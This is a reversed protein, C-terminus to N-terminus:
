RWLIFWLEAYSSRPPPMGGAVQPNWEWLTLLASIMVMDQCCRSIHFNNGTCVFDIDINASFIARHLDNNSGLNPLEWDIHLPINCVIIMWSMCYINELFGNGQPTINSRNWSDRISTKWNNSHLIKGRPPSSWNLTGLIERDICGAMFWWDIEFYLATGEYRPWSELSFYVGQEGTLAFYPM